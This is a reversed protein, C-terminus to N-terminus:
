ILLTLSVGCVPSLPVINYTVLKLPHRQEQPSLTAEFRILNNVFDFVQEMVADQRIEDEGKVLQKFRGGRSGRCVVIKPRHLGSDTMTFVPEFEKVQEAGTIEGKELYDGYPRIPPPKTLICPPYPM